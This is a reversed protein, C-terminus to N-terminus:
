FFHDHSSLIDYHLYYRTKSWKNLKITTVRAIMYTLSLDLFAPCLCSESDNQNMNTHKHSACKLEITEKVFLVFYWM